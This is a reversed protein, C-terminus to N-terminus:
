NDKNMSAHITLYGDEVDVKIDNKDYGPLDVEISYSDKNEKIDTKMVKSENHHFFPDRFMDELLDFENRRPVMMM